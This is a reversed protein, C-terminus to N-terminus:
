QDISRAPQRPPDFAGQFARVIFLVLKVILHALQGRSELLLVVRWGGPKLVPGLGESLTLPGGKGLTSLGMTEGAGSSMRHREVRGYSRALGTCKRTRGGLMQMRRQTQCFVAGAPRSGSSAPASRSGPEVPYNRKCLQSGGGTFRRSTPLHEFPALLFLASKMTCSLPPQPHILPPLSFCSCVPYDRMVRGFLREGGKVRCVQM